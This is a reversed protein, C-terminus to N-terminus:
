DRDTARLIGLLGHSEGAPGASFWVDTTLGATGNGPLLAWLGDIEVPKGHVGRLTGDLKGSRPHFAHIRGNGFNGVLLDGSFEGFGHPAIAMGWPSNLVGRTAFRKLFGGHLNFVNIFGHGAGAVDDHRDADQKAYSVFVRNGFVAVNFPAYGHPIGVSRFAHHSSTVPKFQSDFVDIKNAHFNAALLFQKQDRTVLALGKYVANKTSAVQTASTAVGTSNWGFIEGNEGAFIFRAPGSKNDTSLAFNSGGNFVVGTPAGGGPIKVM